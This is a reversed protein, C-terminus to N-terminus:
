HTHLPPSTQIVTLHNLNFGNVIDIELARSTGLVTDRYYQVTVQMGPKLTKLSRSAGSRTTKVGKFDSGILFTRSERKANVGISQHGPDLKVYTISGTWTALQYAAVPHAALLVGLAALAAWPLFRFRVARM